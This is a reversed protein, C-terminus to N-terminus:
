CICLNKQPWPSALLDVHSSCPATLLFILPHALPLFAALHQPGRPRQGRHLSPKQGGLSAPGQPALVSKLDSLLTSQLLCPTPFQLGPSLLQHGSQHGSWPPLPPPVHQNRSRAPFCFLLKVPVQGWPLCSRTGLAEPSRQGNGELSTSAGHPSTLWGGPVAPESRGPRWSM